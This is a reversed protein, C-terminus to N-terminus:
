YGGGYGCDECMGGFEDLTAVDEETKCKPCDATERWGTYCACPWQNHPEIEKGCTPCPEDGKVVDWATAFATM